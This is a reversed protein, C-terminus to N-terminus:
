PFTAKYELYSIIMVNVMVRYNFKCSRAICTIKLEVKLISEMEHVHALVHALPQPQSRRLSYTLLFLHCFSNLVLGFEFM